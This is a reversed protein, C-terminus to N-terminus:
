IRYKKATPEMYFLVKKEYQHDTGLGDDICGNVTIEVKYKSPIKKKRQNDLEVSLLQMSVYVQKLQPAYTSLSQRISDECEKKSIGSNPGTASLGTQENNFDRFHVNSYEHNWYEFGFDPDGFFSGKPTFVILEILNDLALVNDEINRAIRIGSETNDFSLPTSSFYM